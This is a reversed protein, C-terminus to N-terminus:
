TVDSSSIGSNEIVHNVLMVEDGSLFSSIVRLYRLM